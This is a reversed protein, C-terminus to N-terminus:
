RQVGRSPNIPTRRALERQQELEAAIRDHTETAIEFARDIVWPALRGFAADGSEGDLVHDTAGFTSWARGGDPTAYEITQKVVIQAGQGLGEYVTAGTEDSPQTADDDLSPDNLMLRSLRPDRQGREVPVDAPDFGEAM